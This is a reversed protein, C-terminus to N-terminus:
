EVFKQKIFDCFAQVRSTRHMLLHTVLWFDSHWEDWDDFVPVLNPDDKAQKDGIVGLGMGLKVAQQCQYFDSSRFVINDNPINTEIWRIFPAPSDPMASVFKHKVLEARNKPLGERRIYEQSAYLGHKLVWLHQAIYDPESPQKGPRLAIHAEGYDLRLKRQDLLIELRLQPHLQQFEALWPTIIDIMSTVTTIVLSGSIQQDTGQLFGTLKDVQENIGGAVQFLAQGAETPRYGRAHRHFLRTNLRKELSNIRRLVTSHHVNLAVAAASLTGRLAVEYAVRIDDWHELQTNMCM